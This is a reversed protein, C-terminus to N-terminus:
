NQKVPSFDDPNLPVLQNPRLNWPDDPLQGHLRSAVTVAAMFTVLVLLPHYSPWNRIQMTSNRSTTTLRSFRIPCTISTM